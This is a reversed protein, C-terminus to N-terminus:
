QVACPAALFQADPRQPEVVVEVSGTHRVQRRQLRPRQRGRQQTVGFPQSDSMQHQAVLKPMRDHQGLHRRREVLDGPAPQLQTEAAARDLGFVLLRPQLPAAEGLPRRSQALRELDEVLGEGRAADVEVARVVGDAPQRDTGTRRLLWVRRDDDAPHAFLVGQWQDGAVGVHPIDGGIREAFEFM